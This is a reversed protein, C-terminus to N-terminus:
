GDVEIVVCEPLEIYNDDDSNKPTVGKGGHYGVVEGSIGCVLCAWDRVVYNNPKNCGASVYITGGCLPCEAEAM